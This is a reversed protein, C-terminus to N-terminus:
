MSRDSIKRNAFISKFISSITSIEGLRLGMKRFDSRFHGIKVSSCFRYEVTKCVVNRNRDPNKPMLRTKIGTSKVKRKKESVNANNVSQALRLVLTFRIIM